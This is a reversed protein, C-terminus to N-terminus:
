RGTGGKKLTIFSNRPRVYWGDYDARQAVCWHQRSELHQADWATQQCHHRIREILDKYHYQSM